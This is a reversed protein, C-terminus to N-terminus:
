LQQSCVRLVRQYASQTLSNFFSFLSAAFAKISGLYPPLLVMSYTLFFSSSNCASKSKILFFFGAAARKFCFVSVFRM